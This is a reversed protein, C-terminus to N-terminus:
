LLVDKALNADRESNPSHTLNYSLLQGRSRLDEAGERGVGGSYGRVGCKRVCIYYSPIGLHVCVAVVPEYNILSLIMYMGIEYERMLLGVMVLGLVLGLVGRFGLPM